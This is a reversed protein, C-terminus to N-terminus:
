CNKAKAFSFRSAGRHTRSRLLISVKIVYLSTAASTASGGKITGCGFKVSKCLKLRWMWRAKCRMLQGWCLLMRPHAAMYASRVGVVGNRIGISGPCNAIYYGGGIGIRSSKSAGTRSAVPWGVNL